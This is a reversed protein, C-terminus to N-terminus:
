FPNFQPQGFGGQPQADFSPQAFGGGSAFGGQPQADFSPQAFGGGSAFGAQPAFSQPAGSAAFPDGSAPFSTAGDAPFGADFTPQAVSASAQAAQKTEEVSGKLEAIEENLKAVAQNQERMSQILFPMAFDTCGKRWALELVVDSSLLDYCVFTAAAFCEILDNDLFFHLLEEVVETNKSQSATEIADQYFKDKKSLEISETWRSNKRFIYSSIRRFELCEHNELQRALTIQEFLTYQDISKRLADYDGDEIYMQNLAENVAQVNTGQISALYGKILQLNGSRRFIDVLRTADLKSGISSLLDSIEMPSITLYFNLSRYLIDPNSVQAILEKFYNHSWSSAPHDIVTLVANDYESYKDYAYVLEKWMHMAQLTKIVKFLAIRNNFQKLHEMCKEPQHKAYLVALETFIGGHARELTEAAELLSIIQTFYGLDEYLKIIDSLQDAEVVIQLGAAQALKFDGAKICAANVAKWTKTSSAKRAADIAAQLENLEILTESLRAYDKVATYLIKAAKFLQQDYCRDAIEKTRASNPSSVLEELEGLMDVKAYAFLLESEIIPDRNQIQRTLQLFKVLSKYENAEEASKIVAMYEKTDKAKIFSEIAEVILGNELQKRAVEGWVPEENCHAAWDAAAQLDNKSELMVKVAAVNQNFKKYCAIAEDYLQEEILKEAIKDWTYDNLRTIYTMVRSTDSKAATLILLNQLSVNNQFQPSELVVKELLGILQNPIDAAIFAKVTESVKDADNCEPLATSIVADVVLKMHENEPSLVKAWLDPDQRAVLYRAQEKYLQHTNTLEILDVDCNGKAYAICALHADRKALIDGVFKPNYYQNERLVREPNRGMNYALLVIGNNTAPDISGSQARAELIPQLLRLRERKMTESILEEMPATHQVSNILKVIYEQPAEIDILAGIVRGAMAPNYKQVFTELERSANKKFLFKTLDEIFGFRNCLVILPVRDPLDAQMLFDRVREPQLYQSETCMREVEQFDQLKAAAEIYRFHIDPDDCTTVVQALFYYIAESANTQNFLNLLTDIGFQQYYTGAIKVVLQVNGRPNNTLLEKLCDIAWEPSMTSFYKLLFDPSITQTNVICRKISPLDTYHELARQFNGARECLGAIKEQDYFTYCEKAFLEEAVRPANTLTIEFLMTQLDSDEERDQTLVDILFAAAQNFLQFQMLISVIQKPDMLSQGGNAIHQLLPALGDPNTRAILTVIQLWDPQYNFQQCYTAIKDFAGMEAFSACIKASASARLYIALAIRLDYPKCLDGLQETPTLKDEKIWNEILSGKGLNLVQRCFEVSEVDNLKAQSILYTMYQLLPPHGSPPTPCRQLKSITQQGRLADGPTTAAIRAAEQFNGQLLLQDFQQTIFDGSMQIGAASAVKAAVQASGRKTIYDVIAGENIAINIMRGDRGLAIVGGNSALASAIMQTQTIRVSVYLFPTEVEIIYLLGARTILFVSEYKPSFVLQLPLDDQVDPPAPLDCGKKGFAQAQPSSGLPFVNLRMQGAQKSVFCLLPLDGFKSFTACYADIVQSVNRERSYLQVKGVIGGNEPSLAFLAHWNNDHSVSYSLIQAQAFQPLLQFVGSPNAGGSLSWHLVNGGAVIVLTDNDIWQWFSVVMGDPVNFSKLKQRTDLDFVQLINAGRLAIINRSPHMVAADAKMRHRTVQNGAQLDVIAVQSEAGNEERVCLYKDKSLASNTLSAFQPDIGIGTFTLVDNVGIPSAM